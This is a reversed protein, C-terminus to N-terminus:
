NFGQRHGGLWDHRFFLREHGTGSVLDVVDKSCSAVLMSVQFGCTGDGKREPLCQVVFGRLTVWREGQEVVVKRLGPPLAEVLLRVQLETGVEFRQRAWFILGQGCAGCLEVVTQGAGGM